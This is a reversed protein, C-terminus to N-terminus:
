FYVTSTASLLQMGPIRLALMSAGFMLLIGFGILAIGVGRATRVMQNVADLLQTAQGVLGTLEEAIGKNALRTTQLALTQVERSNVRFTLIFVGLSFTVLGLGFALASMSMILIQIPESIM